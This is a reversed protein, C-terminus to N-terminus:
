INYMNMTLVRIIEDFYCDNCCKGQNKKYEILVKGCKRCVKIYNIKAYLMWYGNM